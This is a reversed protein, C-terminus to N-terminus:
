IKEFNNYKIDKTTNALEDLVTINRIGTEARVKEFANPNLQTGLKNFSKKIEEVFIKYEQDNLFYRLYVIIDIIRQTRHKTYTKPNALFQNFPQNVRGNDRTIGYIRENHACSNRIKRMWHLISILLDPSPNGYSDHISYLECISNVVEPKCINLFNIFTSFNIVKVFIWTPVSNHEDLYHQVYPQKSKDIENYCKAIVKIKDQARIGPNFSDVEFWETNGNDNVFDFKHGALTRIEEECHTINRLLIYRIEDDFDKVAKFHDISTRGIYKHNGNVDKGIIFPTKYGNILNFYGNKVLILKHDSGNCDISKTERLYKMQQNHTKFPKDM